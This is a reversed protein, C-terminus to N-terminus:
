ARALAAAVAVLLRVGWGTAGPGLYRWPADIRSPGAIDLHAWALDPPVFRALFNAAHIAGGHEMKAMNAIDALPHQLASAYEEVLPLRWLPDGTQRAAQALLDALADSRTFLAAINPGLAAAAAGTLTAVDILHTPKLAALHHLADSLVLRGEADTNEIYVTTGNAATLIAGPHFAAGDVANHAAVVVATVPIPLALAAIARMAGLVAAAGAMDGNMRHMSQRTKICLGGTDFTIGKGALALHATPHARGAPRYRIIAATPPHESGRGVEWTMPFGRAALKNAPIVTATLTPFERALARAEDALASPTLINNPANVLLRAHNQASAVTHAHDVAARVAARHGPRVVYTIELPPRDSAKGKFREDRFDGLLIAEHIAAAKQPAVDHHVAIALRRLQHRRCQAVARAAATKLAEDPPLHAPGSAGEVLLHRTAALDTSDLTCFWEPPTGKQAAAMRQWSQWHRALGEGASALPAEGEVLVVVVDARVADLPKETITYKM